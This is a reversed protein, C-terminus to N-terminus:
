RRSLMGELRGRAMAAFYRATGPRGTALFLASGIALQAVRWALYVRPYHHRRLMRSHDVGYNHARAMAARDGLRPHHSEHVIRISPDYRIEFGHETARLLYDTEEGSGLRGDRPGFTEDFRGVKEILERRLFITPSIGRRLVNWRTVPGPESDWRLQSVRGASDVTMGTVGGLTPRAEFVTAVRELLDHPYVCDDDPFAVVDAQLEGLVANRALSLGAGPLQRYVIPLAASYREIIPGLRADSNADVVFLRFRPHTQQRLSDLCRPLDDVRGVTSMVLDFTHVSKM